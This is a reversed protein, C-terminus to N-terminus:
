TGSSLRKIANMSRKWEAERKKMQECMELLEEKNTFYGCFHKWSIGGQSYLYEDYIYNRWTGDKHLILRQNNVLYFMGFFPNDERVEKLVKM